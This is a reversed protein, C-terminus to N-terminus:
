VRRYEMMSKDPLMGKLGAWIGADDYWEDMQDEGRLAWHAAALQTGNALLVPDKGVAQAKLTLLKGDQPNFLPGSLTAMNWHTLPAAGAPAIQPGKNTTIKIEYDGRVANVEDTTKRDRVTTSHLEAFRGDRWTEVCHHRYDFVTVAAIKESMAVETTVTLVKGATAVQM